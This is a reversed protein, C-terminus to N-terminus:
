PYLSNITTLPNSFRAPPLLESNFAERQVELVRENKSIFFHFGKQPDKIQRVQYNQNIFYSYCSKAIIVMSLRCKYDAVVGRRRKYAQLAM